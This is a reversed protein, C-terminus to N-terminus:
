VEGDGSLWNVSTESGFGEACQDKKKCIALLEGSGGSWSQHGGLRRNLPCFTNNVQPFLPRVISRLISGLKFILPAIGGVGSLLM